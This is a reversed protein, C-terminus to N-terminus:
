RGMWSQHDIRAMEASVKGRTKKVRQAVDILLGIANKDVALIKLCEVEHLASIALFYLADVDIRRIICITTIKKILIIVLM